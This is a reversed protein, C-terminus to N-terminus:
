HPHGGALLAGAMVGVLAWRLATWPLRTHGRLLAGACAALLLEANTAMADLGGVPEPEGAGPGFPLGATRTLAWLAAVALSGAVGAALARPTPRAWVWAGWGLQACALAAFFAAAAPWEHLHDAFAAVHILGAAWALAALLQAPESRAPVPDRGLEGAPAVRVM